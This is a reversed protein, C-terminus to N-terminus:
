RELWISVEKKSFAALTLFEWSAAMHKISAPPGTEADYGEMIMIREKAIPLDTVIRGQM